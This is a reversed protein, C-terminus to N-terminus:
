KCFLVTESWINTTHRVYFKYNPNIKHILLPLECVDFYKHYISIALKPRYQTIANKAGRIANEEHGEIDMKIFNLKAIKNKEVFEDITTTEIDIYNESNDIPAVDLIESCEEKNTLTAHYSKDSLGKEIIVINKRNNLQINEKLIKAINKNPEFAYVLGDPCVASDFYLASDGYFAGADIVTDGKNLEVIGPIEYQSRFYVYKISTKVIDKNGKLKPIPYRPENLICSPSLIPETRALWYTLRYKIVDYYIKKSKEDALLCFVQNLKDVNDRYYVMFSFLKKRSDNFNNEFDDEIQRILENFVDKSEKNFTCNV